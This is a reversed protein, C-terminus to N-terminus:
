KINITKENEYMRTALRDFSEETEKIIECLKHPPLEIIRPIIISGQTSNVCVRAVEDAENETEVIGGFHVGTMIVGVRKDDVVKAYVVLLSM